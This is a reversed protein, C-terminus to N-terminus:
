SRTTTRSSSWRGLFTSCWTRGPQSTHSYSSSCGTWTQRRRQLMMCGACWNSLCGRLAVEYKRDGVLYDLCYLMGGNPGLNLREMVEALDVLDRTDVAVPYPLEENAPDCNM